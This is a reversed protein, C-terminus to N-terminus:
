KNKRVHTAFLRLILSLAFRSFYLSFRLKEKIESSFFSTFAYGLICKVARSRSTNPIGDPYIEIRKMYSALGLCTGLLDWFSVLPPPTLYSSSGLYMNLMNFELLRNLTINLWRCIRVAHDDLDKKVRARFSSVDLLCNDSLLFTCWVIVCYSLVYFWCLIFWLLNVVIM